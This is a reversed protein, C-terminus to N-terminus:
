LGGPQPKNLFQTNLERYIQQFLDKPFFLVLFGLQMLAMMSGSFFISKYLLFITFFWIASWRTKPIWLLGWGVLYAVTETISFMQLVGTNEIFANVAPRNAFGHVQALLADGNLWRPDLRWLGQYFFVICVFVKFALVEYLANKKMTQKPFFLDDLSFGKDADVFLFIFLMGLMFYMQDQYYAKELLFLYSFGLFLLWASLRYLFGLAFCVALCLLVYVLPQFLTKEIVPVHFFQFLSFSFFHDPKIFLFQINESHYASSIYICLATGTLFRLFALRYADSEGTLKIFFEKLPQM